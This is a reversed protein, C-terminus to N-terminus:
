NYTIFVTLIATLLANILAPWFIKSVGYQLLLGLFLLILLFGSFGLILAVILLQKVDLPNQMQEIQFLTMICVAFSGAIIGGMSCFPLRSFLFGFVPFIARLIMGLFGFLAKM